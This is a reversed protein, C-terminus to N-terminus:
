VQRHIPWMQTCQLCGGRQLPPCWWWSSLIHGLRHCNRGALHPIVAGLL